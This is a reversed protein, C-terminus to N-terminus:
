KWIIKKEGRKYPEICYKMAQEQSLMGIIGKVWCLYKGDFRICKCPSIKAREENVLIGM